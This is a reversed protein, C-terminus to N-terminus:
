KKVYAKLILNVKQKLYDQPQRSIKIEDAFIPQVGNELQNLFSGLNHYGSLLDLKISLSVFDQGTSSKDKPRTDKSPNIEMVKINNDNAINSIEQLLLPIEGQSYIKLLKPLAKEKQAAQQLLVADKSVLEIDKKLKSIKSGLAAVAKRQATIIFAFDLFIIVCAVILALTAKKRDTRLIEPYNLLKELM